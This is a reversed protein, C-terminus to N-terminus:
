LIQPVGVLNRQIYARVTGVETSVVHPSRQRMQISVTRSPGAEDPFVPLMLPWSPSVVVGDTPTSSDQTNLRSFPWLIMPEGANAADYRAQETIIVDTTPGALELVFKFDTAPGGGISFDMAWIRWIEDVTAGLAIPDIMSTVLDQGPNVWSTTVHWLPPLATQGDALYPHTLQVDDSVAFPQKTAPATSPTFIRRIWPADRIFRGM